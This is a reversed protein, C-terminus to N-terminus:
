SDSVYQEWIDPLNSISLASRDLKLEIGQIAADLVASERFTNFGERYGLLAMKTLAAIVALRDREDLEIELRDQLEDWVPAIVRGLDGSADQWMIM